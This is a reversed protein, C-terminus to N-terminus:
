EANMDILKPIECSYKNQNEVGLVVSRVVRIRRVRSVIVAM